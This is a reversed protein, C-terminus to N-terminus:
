RRVCREDVRLVRRQFFRMRRKHQALGVRRVLNNRQPPQIRARRPIHTTHQPYIPHAFPSLQQIINSRISTHPYKLPSCLSIM